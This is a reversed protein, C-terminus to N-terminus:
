RSTKHLRPKGQRLLGIAAFALLGLRWTFDNKQSGSFVNIPKATHQGPFSFSETVSPQSGKLRQFSQGWFVSLKAM